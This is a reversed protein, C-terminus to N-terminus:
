KSVIIKIGGNGTKQIVRSQQTPTMKEKVVNRLFASIGIEKSQEQIFELVDKDEQEHLCVTLKKTYKGM